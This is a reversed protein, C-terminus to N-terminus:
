RSFFESLRAAYADPHALSYEGHRMNPAIWLESQPITQHLLQASRLMPSGEREGAIILVKAKTQSLGSSLTYSANSTLTNLLSAKSLKLSDTFYTNFLADPVFLAKAQLRAFWRRRILGYSMGVMPAALAKIAPMPCVLASELVAYQAIDPRASLTAVAIQAGLSLGGLAFLHGGHYRDIYDLLKQSSREISEFPEDAADGYGDIAPCIIHYQHQLQEVTQQYAWWSLGAGHLLLVNPLHTSGFEKFIM